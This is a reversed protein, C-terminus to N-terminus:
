TLSESEGFAEILEKTMGQLTVQYKLLKARLTANERELNETPLADLRIKRRLEANEHQLDEIWIEPNDRQLRWIESELETIAESSARMSAEPFEPDLPTNMLEAIQARILNIQNRVQNKEEEEEKM